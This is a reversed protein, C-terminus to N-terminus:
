SQLQRQVAALPGAGCPGFDTLYARSFPPGDYALSQWATLSSYFAAMTDEVLAAFLNAAAGDPWSRYLTTAQQSLRKVVSDGGRASEQFSRELEKILAIKDRETLDAFARGGKRNALDDFALLGRAYLRRAAASL